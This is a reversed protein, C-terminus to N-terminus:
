FPCPRSFRHSNEPLRLAFSQGSSIQKEGYLVNNLDNLVKHKINDNHIKSSQMSDWMLRTSNQPQVYMEYLEDVSIGLSAAFNIFVGEQKVDEGRPLNDYSFIQERADPIVQFDEEMQRYWNNLLALENAQYFPKIVYMYYDHDSIDYYSCLRYFKLSVYLSSLICNFEADCAVDPPTEESKAFPFLQEFTYGAIPFRNDNYFDALERCTPHWREPNARVYATRIFPLFRYRVLRLIDDSESYGYCRPFLASQFSVSPSFCELRGDINFVRGSIKDYTLDEVKQYYEEDPATGYHSSHRAFPRSTKYRLVSPVCSYSNVYGAVYKACKGTASLQCDYRGYKWAKHVCYKFVKAVADSSTTFVFHYHPRFTKPGYEGVSFHRIDKAEDEKHKFSLKYAMHSRFRKLFLQVDRYWLTGFENLLPLKFANNQFPRLLEKLGYHRNPVFDFEELVDTGYYEIMRKTKAIFRVHQVPLAKQAILSEYHWKREKKTLQRNYIETSKDYVVDGFENTKVGLDIHVTPLHEPAYTLTVFFTYKAKLSEQKVAITNKYAKANLCAKCKGCSVRFLTGDKKRLTIPSLCSM